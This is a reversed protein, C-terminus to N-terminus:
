KLKLLVSTVDVIGRPIDFLQGPIMEAKLPYFNEIALNTIKFSNCYIEESNVKVPAYACVQVPIQFPVPAFNNRLNFTEL